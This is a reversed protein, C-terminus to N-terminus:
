WLDDQFSYIDVALPATELGQTGAKYAETVILLTRFLTGYKFRWARQNLGIAAKWEVQSTQAGEAM